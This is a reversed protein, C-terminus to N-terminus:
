IFYINKERKKGAARLEGPTMGNKEKFIKCFYSFSSFGLETAIESISRDTECLMNKAEALRKSVIYESVTSGICKKFEHCLYYESIHLKASISSTRINEGLNRDIYELARGVIGTDHPKEPLASDKIMLFIKFIEFMLASPDDKKKKAELFCADIKEATDRDFTVCMGGDGMAEKVADLCFVSRLFVALASKDTLIKSRVYEEPIRPQTCQPKSCDILYLAGDIMPFVKSGALVNGSGHFVQLIEFVNRYTHKINSKEDLGRQRYFIRFDM